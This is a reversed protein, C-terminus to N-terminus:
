FTLVLRVNLNGFSYIFLSRPKNTRQGLKLCSMEQGGTPTLHDSRQNENQNFYLYIIGWLSHAPIRLWGFEYIKTQNFSWYFDLVHFPYEEWRGLDACIIPQGTM